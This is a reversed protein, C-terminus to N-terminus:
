FTNTLCSKKKEHLMAFNLGNKADYWTHLGGYRYLMVNLDCTKDEFEEEVM